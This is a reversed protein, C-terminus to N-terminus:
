FFVKWPFGKSPSRDQKALSFPKILLFLLPLSNGRFFFNQFPFVWLPWKSEWEYKKEQFMSNPFSQNRPNSLNSFLPFKYFTIQFVVVWVYLWMASYLYEWEVLMERFSHSRNHKWSRRPSCMAPGLWSPKYCPHFISGPATRQRNCVMSMPGQILKPSWYKCYHKWLSLRCRQRNCVM